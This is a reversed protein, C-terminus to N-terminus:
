INASENLTLLKDFIKDWSFEMLAEFANASIREYDAFVHKIKDRIDM